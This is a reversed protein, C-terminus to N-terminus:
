KWLLTQNSKGPLMICAFTFQFFPLRLYSSDSHEKALDTLNYITTPPDLRSHSQGKPCTIKPQIFFAPRAGALPLSIPLVRGDHNRSWNKDQSLWPRDGSIFKRLIRKIMTNIMAFSLLNSHLSVRFTWSAAHQSTSFSILPLLNTLLDTIGGQAM